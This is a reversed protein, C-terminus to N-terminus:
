RGTWLESMRQSCVDELQPHAAQAEDFKRYWEALLQPSEVPPDDIEAKIRETLEFITARNYQATACADRAAVAKPNEVKLNKIADAAARIDAPRSPPTDRARQVASEVSDFQERDSPSCGLALLAFVLASAERFM